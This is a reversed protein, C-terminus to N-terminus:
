EISNNVSRKELERSVNIAFAFGHPLDAKIESLAADASSYITKTIDLFAKNRDPGLLLGLLNLTLSAGEQRVKSLFKRKQKQDIERIERQLRGITPKFNTKIDFQIEERIESFTAGRLDSKLRGIQALALERFESHADGTRVKDRISLIEEVPISSLTFNDLICTLAEFVWIMSALEPNPLSTPKKPNYLTNPPQDGPLILSPISLKLSTAYGHSAMLPAYKFDERGEETELYIDESEQEVERILSQNPYLISAHVTPWSYPVLIGEQTLVKLDSPQKSYYEDNEYLVGEDSLIHDCILIVPLLLYASHLKLSLFDAGYVVQLPQLHKRYEPHLGYRKAVEVLQQRHLILRTDCNLAYNLCNERIHVPSKTLCYELVTTSKFFGSQKEIKIAEDRLREYQESTVGCLFLIRKQEEESKSHTHLDIYIHSDVFSALYLILELPWSSDSYLEPISM